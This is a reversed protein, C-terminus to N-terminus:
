KRKKHRRLRATEKDDRDIKWQLKPMGYVLRIRFKMDHVLSCDCCAMSLSKPTDEWGDGIPEYPKYKKM